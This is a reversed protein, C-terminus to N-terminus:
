SGSMKKVMAPVKLRVGSGRFVKPLDVGDFIDFLESKKTDPMSIM